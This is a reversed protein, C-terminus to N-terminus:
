KTEFYCYTISNHHASKILRFYHSTYVGTKINTLENKRPKYM